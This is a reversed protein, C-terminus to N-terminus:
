WGKEGTIGMVGLRTVLASLFLILLISGLVGVSSRTFSSSSIQYDPSTTPTVFMFTHLTCVQDMITQVSKLTKPRILITNHIPRNTQQAGGPTGCYSGIATRSDDAASLAPVVLRWRPMSVICTTKQSIYHLRCLRLPSSSSSSWTNGNRLTLQVQKSYILRKKKRKLM